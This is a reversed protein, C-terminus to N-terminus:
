GNAKVRYEVHRVLGLKKLLKAGPEKKEGSILRSLYGANIGLVKAAARLSGHRQALMNISEYLVRDPAIKSKGAM